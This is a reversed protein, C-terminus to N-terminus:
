KAPIMRTPWDTAKERVTRISAHVAPPAGPAPYNVEFVVVRVRGHGAAPAPGPPAPAALWFEETCGDRRYGALSGFPGAAAAMAAFTEHGALARLTARAPRWLRRHCVPTRVVPLTGLLVFILGGALVGADFWAQGFAGVWGAGSTVVVADTIGGAVLLGSRAIARWTVTGAAPKRWNLCGCSGPVRRIRVYGLLVCFVAGLAAMAAGGLVPHLGACVLTGTLCELAGAAMETRRWWRRPLRLVRRIATGGEIGRVGRYLKSLGAAVLVAGCSAAGGAVLLAGPSVTIV